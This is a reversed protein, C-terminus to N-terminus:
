SLDAQNLEKDMFPNLTGRSVSKIDRIWSFKLVINQTM